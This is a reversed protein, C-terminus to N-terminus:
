AAREVGCLHNDASNMLLEVQWLFDDASVAEAKLRRYLDDLRDFYPQIINNHRNPNKRYSGHGHKVLRDMTEWRTLVVDSEHLHYDLMESLRHAAVAAELEITQDM